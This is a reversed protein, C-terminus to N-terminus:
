IHNDENQYYFKNGFQQIKINRHNVCNFDCDTIFDCDPNTCSIYGCDISGIDRKKGNVSIEGNLKIQYNLSYQMLASYELRSGCIPCKNLLKKM